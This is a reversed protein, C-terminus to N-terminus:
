IIALYNHIYPQLSDITFICWVVSIIVTSIAAIYVFQYMATKLNDARVLIGTIIYKVVFWGVGFIFLILLLALGMPNEPNFFNDGITQYMTTADALRTTWVGDESIRLGWGWLIWISLFAIIGQPVILLFKKLKDKDGTDKWAGAQFTGYGFLCVAIATYVISASVYCVYDVYIPDSVGVAGVIGRLIKIEHLCTLILSLMIYFSVFNNTKAYKEDGEKLMILHRKVSGFGREEFFATWGNQEYNLGLYGPRYTIGKELKYHFPSILIAWVGILGILVFSTNVMLDNGAIVGPWWMLWMLGFTGFLSAYFEIATIKRIKKIRLKEEDNEPQKYISDTDVNFSNRIWNGIDSLLGHSGAQKEATREINEHNEQEM